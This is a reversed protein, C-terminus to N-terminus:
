SAPITSPWFATMSNREASFSEANGANTASRSPRCCFQLLLAHDVLSNSPARLLSFRLRFEEFPVSPKCVRGALSFTTANSAFFSGRDLARHRAHDLRGAAHRGLDARADSVSQM